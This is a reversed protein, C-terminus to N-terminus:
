EDGGEKSRRAHSAGALFAERLAWGHWLPALGLTADKTDLVSDVYAYAAVVDPHTGAPQVRRDHEPTASNMRIDQSVGRGARTCDPCIGTGMGPHGPKPISAPLKYRILWEHGGFERGCLDCPLWFYGGWWARLRNLWRFRM